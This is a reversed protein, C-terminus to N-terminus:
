EVGVLLPHGPQGGDHVEVEVAPWRSRLHRTLADAIGDPADAGVVLTVLEGGGLLLRYLVERGASLVDEGLVAVDGEIVGLAQGEACVGASTLAAHDAIIVAGSRTSRATATMALVDEALPREDDHVALAALGQMVSRTPVVRASRGEARAGAAAAQADPEASPDNPLLIVEGAGTRRIAHLVEATSPSALQFGEVVTAGAATLLPALGGGHVMAIVARGALAATPGASQGVQDAFRTVVIQSPRGVEIAAEIAAGVDDVHVHVRYRGPRGSVVLSNGLAGLAAELGPVAEPQADLLYMVEYAPDQEAPDQEAPDPAAPDPAEPKIPAPPGTPTPRARPRAAVPVRPVGALAELLVVLGAGGADVVGAERLAPLQTTTGALAARAAALAATAVEAAGAPPGTPAGPGAVALAGEGAARAVTLITGELPQGVAGTAGASAADVAAALARGDLVACDGAGGAFGRLWAALIVGSNGRAGLLAAEAAAVAVEAADASSAGSWAQVADAVAASTLALNTGTDGDAVPFVNIEDLEGSAGVLASAGAVLWRALASGDLGTAAPEPRFTSM